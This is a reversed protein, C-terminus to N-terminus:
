TDPVADRVHKQMLLLHRFLERPKSSLYFGGPEQGGEGGEGGRCGAEGLGSM